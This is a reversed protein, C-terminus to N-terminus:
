PNPYGRFGGILESFSLGSTQFTHWALKPSKRRLMMSLIRRAHTRKIREGVLKKEETNLHSTSHLTELELKHRVNLMQTTKQELQIQQGDHQRWWVLAPPLSVLPWREALKFWLETDGVFQRGSFGGVAQFSDTRILSATPGVGFLSKGLFHARLTARESTCFPFPQAPDSNNLSLALAADPFQEMAKLMVSFTYPYVMDDADVYKLYKGRAKSAAENRNAYDGLNEINQFARIRSDRKALQQALSFSSDKSCDDVLILEFDKFDSELISDVTEQLIHARNYITVLVSIIPQDSTTMPINENAAAM